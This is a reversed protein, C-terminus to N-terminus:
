LRETDGRRFPDLDFAGRNYHTAQGQKRQELKAQCPENLLVAQPVLLDAKMSLLSRDKVRNFPRQAPSDQIGASPTNRHDLSPLFAEWGDLKCKELIKKAEKM